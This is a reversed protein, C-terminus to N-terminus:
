CTQSCKQAKKAKRNAARRAKGRKIAAACIKCLGTGPVEPRQCYKADFRGDTWLMNLCTRM